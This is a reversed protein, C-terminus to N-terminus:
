PSQRWHALNRWSTEALVARGDDLVICLAASPAGSAMGESPRRDSVGEGAASESRPYPRWAGDEISLDVALTTGQPDDPFRGGAFQVGGMLHGDEAPAGGDTPSWASRTLRSGSAACCTGAPASAWTATSPTPSTVSRATLSPSPRRPGPRGPRGAVLRSPAPRSCCTRTGGAEGRVVPIGRPPSRSPTWRLRELTPIVAVDGQFQLVDHVPVIDDRDLHDHVDVGHEAILTALTRM